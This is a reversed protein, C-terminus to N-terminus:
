MGDKPLRLRVSKSALWIDVGTNIAGTWIRQLVTSKM